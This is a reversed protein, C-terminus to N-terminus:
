HRQLHLACRQSRLLSLKWREVNGNNLRRLNITREMWCSKSRLKRIFYEAVTVEISKSATRTERQNNAEEAYLCMVRFM